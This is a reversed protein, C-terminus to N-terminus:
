LIWLFAVFHLLICLFHHIFLCPADFIISVNSVYWFAIFSINKYKRFQYYSFIFVTIFPISLQKKYNFTSLPEHTWSHLREYFIHCVYSWVISMFSQLLTWMWVFEYPCWMRYLSTKSIWREWVGGLHSNLRIMGTNLYVWLMANLV